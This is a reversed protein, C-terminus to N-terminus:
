ATLGDDWGQYTQKGQSKEKKDIQKRSRPMGPPKSILTLLFHVKNPIPCEEVLFYDYGPNTGPRM